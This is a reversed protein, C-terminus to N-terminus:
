VHTSNTRVNQKTQVIQLGRTLQIHACMTNKGQLNNSSPSMQRRSQWHVIFIGTCYTHTYTHSLATSWITHVSNLQMGAVWETVEMSSKMIQSHRSEGPHLDLCPQAGPLVCDACLFVPVCLPLFLSQGTYAFLTVTNPLSSTSFIYYVDIVTFIM